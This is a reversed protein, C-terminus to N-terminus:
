LWIGERKMNAEVADMDLPHLTGTEDCYWLTTYIWGEAIMGRAFALAEAKDAFAYPAPTDNRVTIVLYDLM